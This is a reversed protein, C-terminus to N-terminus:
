TKKTINGRGWGPGDDHNDKLHKQQKQIWDAGHYVTERLLIAWVAVSCMPFELLVERLYTAKAIYMAPASEPM